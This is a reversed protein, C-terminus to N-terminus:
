DPCFTSLVVLQVPEAQVPVIEPGGGVGVIVDVGGFGLVEDLAAKENVSVLVDAVNRHWISL